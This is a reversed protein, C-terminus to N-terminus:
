SLKSREARILGALPSGVQRVVMELDDEQQVSIYGLRRASHVCYGVEALSSKATDLFNMRRRLYETAFGEVINASVSFAARRL